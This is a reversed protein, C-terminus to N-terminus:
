AGPWFEKRYGEPLWPSTWPAATPVVLYRRRRRAVLLDRGSGDRRSGNGRRTAAVTPGARGEIRSGEDATAGFAPGPIMRRHMADRRLIARGVEGRAGRLQEASRESRQSASSAAVDVGDDGGPRGDVADPCASRFGSRGVALPWRHCRQRVVVWAPAGGKEVGPQQSRGSLRLAWRRL